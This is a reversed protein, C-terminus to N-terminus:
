GLQLHFFQNFDSPQYDAFPEGKVFGRKRYLTLAAEFEPGDGTELSLTTLGRARAEAIIHELVAEGVGSRLHDPHTRMSKVEGTRADLAKLAGIGCLSDGRWASWVTVNPEQLGTLDLVFCTGPPSAAHMGELHLKVLARVADHSLDDEVIRIRDPNAM